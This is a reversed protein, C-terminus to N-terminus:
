ELVERLRAVQADGAAAGAADLEDKTAECNAFREAVDLATISRPDTMLHQIQRACWVAFLRLTKDDLVEPRLVCWLKDADPIRADTLIDLATYTVGEALYREPPYCPSWSRVDTITFTPLRKLDTMGM